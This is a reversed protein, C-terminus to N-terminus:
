ADFIVMGSELDGPAALELVLLASLGAQCQNQGHHQGSTGAGKKPTGCGADARQQDEKGHGQCRQASEHRQMQSASVSFTELATPKMASKPTATNFAIMMIALRFRQLRSDSPDSLSAIILPALSRSRGTSIVAVTAAM